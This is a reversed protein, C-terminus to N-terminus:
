IKIHSWYKGLKIKSIYSKDLNYMEAVIRQLKGSKLHERIELVDKETLKARPHNEGRIAKSKKKKWEETHKKNLFPVSDGSLLDLMKNRYKPYKWRRKLNESHKKRTEESIVRNKASNSMKLKNEETHKKDYFGNNEGSSAISIKKKHEESLSGRKFGLCTSGESNINYGFKYDVAKLEKIWRTEIIDLKKNNKIVYELIIFEFKNEGYKNWARQLHKNFHKNSRLRGTHQWKRHNFNITQGVYIKNNVINKICYIGSEKLSNGIM